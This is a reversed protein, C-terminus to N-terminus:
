RPLARVAFLHHATRVYLTNGAIAPTARIPEGFDNRALVEVTDGAVVVLLEGEEGALFLKSDALM